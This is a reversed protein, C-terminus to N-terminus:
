VILRGCFLIQDLLVSKGIRAIDFRYTYNRKVKLSYIGLLYDIDQPDTHLAHEIFALLKIYLM